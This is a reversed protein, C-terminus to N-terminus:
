GRRTATPATARTSSSACSRTPSRRRTPRSSCWAPTARSTRTAPSAASCRPPLLRGARAGPRGGAGRRGPLRHRQHRGADADPRRRRLRRQVQAAPRVDRPTSSTSTGNAPTRARTSCSAPRSAPPPTARSTASTTPARARPARPRHRHAGRARRHRQPGPDRAAAPQRPHDCARLRRRVSPSTPWAPSSGTSSSATRSACGACTADQAPSVYFLGYYRWRFNDAPKPFEDKAVQDKLRGYADFPHEERKWKEQDALKKGASEVKAQAALHEADPGNPAAPVAAAGSAPKLRGVHIGSTFGELYRKQETTFEGGM